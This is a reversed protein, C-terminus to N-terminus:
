KPGAGKTTQRGGFEVCMWVITKELEQLRRELYRRKHTMRARAARAILLLGVGVVVAGIARAVREGARALRACTMAAAVVAMVRLDMVEIVLLIVM